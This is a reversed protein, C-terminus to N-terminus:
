GVILRAPMDMDAALQRVQTLSLDLFPTEIAFEGKPCDLAILRSVLLARDSADAIRDATLGREVSSRSTSSEVGRRVPWVVRWIGRAVAERSASLLMRSMDWGQGPRRGHEVATVDDGTAVEVRAGPLLEALRSEHAARDATSLGSASWVVVGLGQGAGGGAAGGSGAGPSSRVFETWCAAATCFEGSEQDALIILVDVLREMSSM